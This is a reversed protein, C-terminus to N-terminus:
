RAMAPNGWRISEANTADSWNAYSISGIACEEISGPIMYEPIRWEQSCGGDGDPELYSETEELSDVWLSRQAEAEAETNFLHYLSGETGSCRQVSYVVNLNKM